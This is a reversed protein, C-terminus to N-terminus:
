QSLLPRGHWFIRILCVITSSSGNSSGAPSPANMGFSEGWSMFSGSSQLRSSSQFGASSMSSFRVRSFSVCLRATSSSIIPSKGSTSALGGSSLRKTHRKFGTVVSSSRSIINLRKPFTTVHSIMRSWLVPSERLKANTVNAVFSSASAAYKLISLTSM